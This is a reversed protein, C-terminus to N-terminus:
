LRAGACPFRETSGNKKKMLEDILFSVYILERLVKEAM